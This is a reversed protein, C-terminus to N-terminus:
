RKVLRRFFLKAFLIATNIYVILPNIGHRLLLRHNEVYSKVGGSQGGLRFVGTSFDLRKSKISNEILKLTFDYDASLKYKTDFLGIQTYVSKKVFMTPHLFPMHKFIRYKIHEKGISDITKFFNGDESLLDLKAYVFMIEKDEFSSSVKALTEHYIYDDANVIGVIEGQCLGIGKNMADYIGGDRESVWYDIREEYKKIIEVTGDTSGGDIIIYEVNDYTQNLV